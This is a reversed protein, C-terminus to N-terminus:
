FGGHKSYDISNCRHISPASQTPKQKAFMFQEIDRKFYSLKLQQSTKIVFQNNCFNTYAEKLQEIDYGLSLINNIDKKRDPTLKIQTNSIKKIHEFLILLNEDELLKNNSTKLNTHKNNTLKYPNTSEVLCSQNNDGISQNFEGTSTDLNDCISDDIKTTDFQCLELGQLTLAYWKTHDYKSANYNGTTLIGAKVLTDLARRLKNESIYPFLKQWASRSNYMWYLRDYFHENNAIYKQTWFSINQLIISEEIGYQTAISIDFYHINNM